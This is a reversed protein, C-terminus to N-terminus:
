KTKKVKKSLVRWMKYKSLPRSEVFIIEDGVQYTNSPDHVQYNKSAIYRKKYKPHVKTRKVAVVVTKDSKNSVVIGELKRKIVPKTKTM